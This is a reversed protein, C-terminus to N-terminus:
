PLDASYNTSWGVEKNYYQRVRLAYWSVVDNYKMIQYTRNTYIYM